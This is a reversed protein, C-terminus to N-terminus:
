WWILLECFLFLETLGTKGIHIKLFNPPLNGGGGGGGANIPNIRTRLASGEGWRKNAFKLSHLDQNKSTIINTLVLMTIIITVIIFITVITIIFIFTITLFDVQSSLMAMSREKLFTRPEPPFNMLQFHALQCSKTFLHCHTDFCISLSVAPWFAWFATQFNESFKDTKTTVGM